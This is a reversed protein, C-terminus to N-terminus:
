KLISIGSLGYRSGAVYSRPMEGGHRLDSIYLPHGLMFSIATFTDGAVIKTGYAEQITFSNNGNYIVVCRRNPRWCLEIRDGVSLYSADIQKCSLFGSESSTTSIGRHCFDDWDSYGVFRSLTSLTSYRPTHETSIYGYIRKLTTPSIQESITEGIRLSLLDFDIPSKVPRGLRKEICKLLATIENNYSMYIHARKIRLM